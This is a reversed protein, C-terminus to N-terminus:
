GYIRAAAYKSYASDSRGELWISDWIIGPLFEDWKVELIIQKESVPVTISQPNLFDTGCMGTRINQDLTIRVNGAPYIFADRDYDVITKPYIGKGNIKSYLEVLLPKGSELLWNIDGKLVKEVEEMTLVCMEKHCLGNEKSKKELRIYSIDDNYYRLRFKERKNVGNIKEFLATDRIDDFYLSRVRYKGKNGHVDYQTVLPLRQLLVLYDMYSISHKIEHRFKM